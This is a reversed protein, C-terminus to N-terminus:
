ADEDIQTVSGGVQNWEGVGEALGCSGCKVGDDVVGSDYVLDELCIYEVSDMEGLVGEREQSGRGTPRVTM